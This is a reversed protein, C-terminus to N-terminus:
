IGGGKKREDLIIDLLVGLGITKDLGVDYDKPRELVISDKYTEAIRIHSKDLKVNLYYQRYDKTLDSEPTRKSLYIYLYYIHRLKAHLDETFIFLRDTSDLNIGSIIINSQEMRNDILNWIEKIKVILDDKVLEAYIYLLENEEIGIGVLRSLLFSNLLEYIEHRELKRYEEYFQTSSFEFKSLIAKEAGSSINDYIVHLQIKLKSDCGSLIDFLWHDKNWHKLPITVSITKEGDYPGCSIAVKGVLNCRKVLEENVQPDFTDINLHVSLNNVM